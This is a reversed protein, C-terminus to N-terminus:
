AGPGRGRVVKYGAVAIFTWAFLPCQVNTCFVVLIYSVGAVGVALDTTARRALNVLGMYM